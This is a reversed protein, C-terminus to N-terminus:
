GVPKHDPRGKWEMLDDLISRRMVNRITIVYKTSELTQKLRLTAM